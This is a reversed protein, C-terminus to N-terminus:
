ARRGGRLDYQAQAHHHPLVRASDNLLIGVINDGFRQQLELGLRVTERPTEGAKVVFIVADVEPGIIISDPVPLNPPSDIIVRDAVEGLKALLWRVSDVTVVDRGSSEPDSPVLLKLNPLLLPSLPDGEWEQSGLILKGVAEDGNLGFLPGLGPRRTDLDVLVVREAPLERALALALCASTVSKGEDRGASTLMIRRSELGGSRLLGLVLKRFEQYGPSNDLFRTMVREARAVRVAREDQSRPVGRTLKGFAAMNPITGLVQLGFRREIERVDRFSPDVKELFTVGGIGLGLGALVALLIIPTRKPWVPDLPRQAPVLVSIKEGAKSSGYAASIQSAVMQTEFATLISRNSAVEQQLRQLQLDAEPVASVRGRYQGIAEDLATIRTQLLDRRMLASLYQAARDTGEPKIGVSTLAARGAQVVDETKRSSQIATGQATGESGLLQRIYAGELTRADALGPATEPASLVREAAGPDIGEQRLNRALRDVEGEQTALDAAAGDRLQQAMGVNTAGVLGPAAQLSANQRLFDELEKEAKDLRTRFEQRQVESFASTWQFEASLDSKGADIVSRTINNVLAFVQDPDPMQLAITVQNVPGSREGSASAIVSRRLFEKARLDVLQDETMGEYRSRNKRAWVRFPGAERLRTQTIVRDLFENSRIQSQIRIIQETQSPNVVIGALQFSLQPPPQVLLISQCQYQPKMIQPLTVIWATIAALAVPVLMVFKRRWATALLTELDVTERMPLQEM